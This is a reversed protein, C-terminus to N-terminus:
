ITRKLHKSMKKKQRFLHVSLVNSDSGLEDGIRYRKNKKDKQFRKHRRRSILTASGFECLDANNKSAQDPGPDASSHFALDQDANFDFNLLKLNEFYLRLPDHVSV